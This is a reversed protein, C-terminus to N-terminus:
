FKVTQIIPSNGLKRDANADFLALIHGPLVRSTTNLVKFIILM